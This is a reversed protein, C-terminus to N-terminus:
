VWRNCFSQRASPYYIENEDPDRFKLLGIQSEYETYEELEQIGNFSIGPFSECLHLGKTVLTAIRIFFPNRPYRGPSMLGRSHPREYFSRAQFSSFDHLRVTGLNEDLRRMTEKELSPTNAEDFGAESLTSINELYVCILSKPERVSPL